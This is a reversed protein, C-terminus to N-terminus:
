ALADRSPARAAGPLRYSERHARVNTVAMNGNSSIVVAGAVGRRRLGPRRLAVGDICCFLWACPAHCCDERCAAKCPHATEPVGHFSAHGSKVGLAVGDCSDSHCGAVICAIMDNGFAVRASSSNSADRTTSTSCARLSSQVFSSGDSRHWAETRTAASPWAIICMHGGRAACRTKQAGKALSREVLGLTRFSAAPQLAGASGHWRKSRPRIAM